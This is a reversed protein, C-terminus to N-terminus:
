HSRMKPLLKWALFAFLAGAAISIIFAVIFNLLGNAPILIEDGDKTKQKSPMQTISEVFPSIASAAASTAGIGFGVITINRELHRDREAQSVEVIGRITDIYKERVRLGPSLSARDQEIQEKYKVAVSEGFDELFKLKTIGHETSAIEEIKKLRTQYNNLNTKLTQLQMALSEMGATHKSLTVLNKHLDVKIQQLDKDALNFEPLAVQIEPITSAGPFLDEKELMNKIIRSNRYAWLIKHRYYFLWLWQYYSAAIRELSKKYPCICILVFENSETPNTWDQPQQWVEFMPFGLFYNGQTLNPEINTNKFAQYAAKAAKEGNSSSDTYGLILWTKGINAQIDLKKRFKHFCTTLDQPKDEEKTFCSALLSDAEGLPIRQYFGKLDDIAFKHPTESDFDATPPLQLRNRLDEWSKEQTIQNGESKERLDYAFLVLHPYILLTQM